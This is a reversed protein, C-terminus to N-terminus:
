FAFTRITLTGKRGTSSSYHGRLYGDILLAECEAYLGGAGQEGWAFRGTDVSFVGGKISFAGEGDRGTGTFTSRTKDFTLQYVTAHRNSDQKYAGEWCASVLPCSTSLFAMDPVPGFSSSRAVHVRERREVISTEVSSKELNSSSSSSSSSCPPSGGAGGSPFRCGALSALFGAIGGSTACGLFFPQQEDRPSTENEPEPSLSGVCPPQACTYKTAGGADKVAGTDGGYREAFAVNPMTMAFLLTFLFAAALTATWRGTSNERNLMTATLEEFGFHV